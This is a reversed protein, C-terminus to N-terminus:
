IQMIRNKYFNRGQQWKRVVFSRGGFGWGRMVCVAVVDDGFGWMFRGGIREHWAM